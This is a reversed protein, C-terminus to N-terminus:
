KQKRWQLMADYHERSYTFIKVEKLLFQRVWREEIGKGGGEITVRGTIDNFDIVKGYTEKRNMGIQFGVYLSLQKAVRMMDPVDGGMKTIFRGGKMYFARLNEKETDENFSM